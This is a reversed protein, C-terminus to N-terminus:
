GQEPQWPSNRASKAWERLLGIHISKRKHDVGNVQYLGM